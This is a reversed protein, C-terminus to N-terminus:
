KLGLKRYGAANSYWQALPMLWNKLWPRKIVYNTLSPASMIFSGVLTPSYALLPCASTSLLLSVCESNHVERHRAPRQNAARSYSMGLAM